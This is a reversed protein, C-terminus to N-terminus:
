NGQYKNSNRNRYKTQPCSLHFVYDQSILEASRLINLVSKTYAKGGSSGYLHVGDFRGTKTHRYRAAQIAGSCDINHTGVFMRDKMPSNMWLDMITNNFLYSMAPKVSLSDVDAPDYRPTQKMIIVSKLSPQNELAIISNFINTASIVSVQKFYKLYENPNNNTKLNSVDVSGAQIILHEFTDKVAEAPVVQLYKKKPYYAAEKAVNSVEDYVASYAKATVITSKTADAIVKLDAHASISDGVFLIKPESSQSQKASQLGKARKYPNFRNPAPVRPTVRTNSSPEHSISSSAQPVAETVTVRTKSSPENRIPSSELAPKPCNEKAKSASTTALNNRIMFLEQKMTNQNDLVTVLTNTLAMKLAELSESLVEVQQALTHLIFIEEHFEMVHNQLSKKDKATFACKHCSLFTNDHSKVHEQLHISSGLVLGCSECPFLESQIYLKHLKQTHEDFTKSETFIDGCVECIFTVMNTADLQKVLEPKKPHITSFTNKPGQSIEHTSAHNSLDKQTGFKKGCSNCNHKTDASIKKCKGEHTGPECKRYLHQNLEKQNRTKQNPIM